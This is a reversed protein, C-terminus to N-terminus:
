ASVAPNTRDAVYATLADVLGDLTHVAAVAHVALGARTAAAATVPGICVAPAGLVPHAGGLLARLREASSAATLTLVDAGGALRDLLIHPLEPTLTAYAAVDTVRAGRRQLGEVLDPAGDSARLVLVDAAHADLPLFAGLAAGTHPDAVFAVSLGADTAARATEPGVCAVPVSPVPLRLAALREAVARVGTPSTLVLWDFSAATRLATNFATGDHPPAFALVPCALVTAGLALLRASLAEDPAGARTVVVRCGRLSEAARGPPSIKRPLHTM